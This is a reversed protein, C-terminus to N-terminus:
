VYICKSSSYSGQCGLNPLVSIKEYYGDFVTGFSGKNVLVYTNDVDVYLMRYNYTVGDKEYQVYNYMPDLYYRENTPIDFSTNSEIYERVEYYNNVEQEINYSTCIYLPESLAQWSFVTTLDKAEVCAYDDKVNSMFSTVIYNNDIEEQPIDTDSIDLLGENVLLSIPTVVANQATHLQEAVKKNTELYINYATIIEDHIDSLTSIKNSEIVEKVGVFSVSGVTVILAICIIIEILTFGKKNKM